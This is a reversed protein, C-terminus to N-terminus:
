PSVKAINDAMLRKGKRAKGLGVRMIKREEEKKEKTLRRTKGGGLAM